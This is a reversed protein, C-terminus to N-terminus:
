LLDKIRKRYADLALNGPAGLSKKSAINKQLDVDKTAMEAAQKYADRFPIGKKVVLENAIDATFIGPNIKARINDPKLALGKLVLSVM